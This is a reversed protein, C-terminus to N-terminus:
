KKKRHKEPLASEIKEFSLNRLRIINEKGQSEPLIPEHIILRVPHWNVFSFMSKTRPFIEYCGDITIPVVPMQLSDALSFAGGKFKCLKGDYTRTGEAFIMLSVGEVLRQRAFAITKKAGEVSSNDAFVMRAKECAFGLLPAKRLSERLMWTFERGVFTPLLFIDFASQHNAVFIYSQGKQLHERGIVQVPLFLGRFAIHGWLYNPWFAFIKSLGMMSGLGTALIIFFSALAFIPAFIFVQYLRYLFTLM